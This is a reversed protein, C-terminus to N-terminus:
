PTTPAPTVTVTIKINGTVEESPITYANTSSVALSKVAGTGVQYTVTYTDTNNTPPTISFGYDANKNTMLDGDFTWGEPLEPQEVGVGDKVTTNSMPVLSANSAFQLNLKGTSSVGDPNNIVDDNQIYDGDLYVMATMATAVNQDLTRLTQTTMPANDFVLMGGEAITYGFLCLDGELTIDQDYVRYVSVPGDPDVTLEGNGDDSVYKVTFDTYTQQTTADVGTTVEVSDEAGQNTWNLTVNTGNVVATVNLSLEEATESVVTGEVKNAALTLEENEIAVRAIGYVSDGMTDTFVVRIGSMMEALSELNNFTGDFTMTSGAGMTAENQSDGYIRQAADTQLLLSSNAANTRFVFDLAYGYTVDIFSTSSTDEAVPLTAVKTRTQDLLAGEAPETTTTIKVEVGKLSQGSFVINDDLVIVGSINGTLEGFNAFIGSGENFQLNIGSGNLISSIDLATPDVTKGNLTVYDINMLGSLTTYIQTYRVEGTTPLANAAAQTAEIDASSEVWADYAEGFAPVAARLLTKVNADLGDWFATLHLGTDHAAKISGYLNDPLTINMAAAATSFDLNAMALLANYLSEEVAEDAKTLEAVMAKIDGVYASYDKTDEGDVSAHQLAISALANGYTGLAASLTSNAARKNTNIAALANQFQRATESMSSSTGLTRVGYGPTGATHMLFDDSGAEAKAGYLVQGAKLEDIRGDAGYAPIKLPSSDLTYPSNTAAPKTISLQAPKLTIEDLDYGESVDLLNGWTYNKGLAVLDGNADYTSYWAKNTDGVSSTIASTQGSYPMLAIELNGNAGVTTTIGQIEPATSLTFWAYTTSIMMISAVLMMAVAALLKNKANQQRKDSKKM